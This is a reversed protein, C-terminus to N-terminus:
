RRGGPLWEGDSVTGYYGLQDTFRVTPNGLRKIVAPLIENCNNCIQGDVHVEVEQGELTGGNARAARLLSTPDILSRRPSWTPDIERVRRIAERAEASAAALQAERAASEDEFDRETFDEEPPIAQAIRASGGGVSTWQGGDPNGAPVRPQNRDFGAKVVRQLTRLKAEVVAASLLWNIRRLEASVEWSARSEM